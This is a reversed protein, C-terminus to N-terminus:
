ETFSLDLPNNRLYQKFQCMYQINKIAWNSFCLTEIPSEAETMLYTM